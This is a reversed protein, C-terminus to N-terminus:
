RLLRHTHKSEIRLKSGCGRELEKRPIMAEAKCSTRLGIQLQFGTPKRSSFLHSSCFAALRTIKLHALSFGETGRLERGCKKKPKRETRRRSRNGRSVSRCSPSTASSAAALSTIRPVISSSFFLSARSYPASNDVAALSGSTSRTAQDAQPSILSGITMQSRSTSACSNQGALISSSHLRVSFANLLASTISLLLVSFTGDTDGNRGTGTEDVRSRVCPRVASLALLSAAIFACLSASGEGLRYYM